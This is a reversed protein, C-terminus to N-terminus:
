RCRKSAIISRRGFPCKLFPDAAPNGAGAVLQLVDKDARQFLIEVLVASAHDPDDPDLLRGFVELDNRLTM